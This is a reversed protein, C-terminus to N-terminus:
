KVVRTYYLQFLKLKEYLFYKSILKYTKDLENDLNTLLYIFYKICKLLQLISYLIIISYLHSMIM